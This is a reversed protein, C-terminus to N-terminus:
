DEAMTDAVKQPEKKHRRGSPKASKKRKRICIAADVASKGECDLKPKYNIYNSFTKKTQNAANSFSCNKGRAIEIYIAGYEVTLDTISSSNKWSGLSCSQFAHRCLLLTATGSLIELSIKCNKPYNIEATTM